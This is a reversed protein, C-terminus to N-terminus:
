ANTWFSANIVDLCLIQMMKIHEIMIMLKLFIRVATNNYLSVLSSCGWMSSPSRGGATKKWMALINATFTNDFTPLIRLRLM